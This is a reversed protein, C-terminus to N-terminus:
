KFILKKIREPLLFGIYFEISSSLLILRAIIYTATTSIAFDLVTGVTFSIFAAFLLKGKFKIERNEARMSKRSFLIGVILFLTLNIIFYVQSFPSWKINFPPDLTAIIAVDTFIFYFILAEFILNFILVGGIIWRRKKKYIALLRTFAILGSLVTFPLITIGIIIYGEVTLGSELFWLMIFTVVTPLWPFTLGTWFVGILLVNFQKNKFYKSTIILGIIISIVVAVLTFSSHLIDLGELDTLAM